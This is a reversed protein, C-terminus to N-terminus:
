VLTTRTSKVQIATVRLNERNPNSVVRVEILTPVLAGWRDSSANDIDTLVVIGHTFPRILATLWDVFTGQLKNYKRQWKMRQGWMWWIYSCLIALTRILDCRTFCLLHRRLAPRQCQTSCQEVDVLSSRWMVWANFTSLRNKGCNNLERHFCYSLWNCLWQVSDTNPWVVRSQGSQVFTSRVVRSSFVELRISLTTVMCLIQWFFIGRSCNKLCFCIRWFVRIERCKSIRLLFAYITQCPILSIFFMQKECGETQKLM